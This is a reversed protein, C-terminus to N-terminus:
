VLSTVKEVAVLGISRGSFKKVKCRVMDGTQFQWCELEPNQNESIIRYVNRGVSIAQVPRWVDTGEDLLAVYIKVEAQERM